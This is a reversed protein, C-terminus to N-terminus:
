IYICFLPIDLHTAICVWGDTPDEISFVFYYLPLMCNVSRRRVSLVSNLGRQSIAHVTTSRGWGDGYINEVAQGTAVIGCAERENGSGM